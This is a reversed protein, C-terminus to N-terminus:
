RIQNIMDATVLPASNGWNTREHNIVAAIEENTLQAAFGPMPATYATGDITKGILGNLVTGIHEAPKSAVVVANGALAPFVGPLGGGAPQHCSACQNGYVQAGLKQWDEASSQDAAAAAAAVETVTPKDSQLDSPTDSGSMIQVVQESSVTSANNGWHTREHNVVAVIEDISLQAGFAPMPSGYSVGNITKGQLGKVITQIHETPDDGLVVQNAKLPPFVGPLGTGSSGHCASCTNGYIQEGLLSWSESGKPGQSSTQVAQVRSEAQREQYEVGLYWMGWAFVILVNLWAWTPIPRPTEIRAPEFTDGVDSTYANALITIQDHVIENERIGHIAIAPGNRVTIPIERTSTIGSEQTARFQLIHAGDELQTTDLNFREPADLTAIPKSIGDLFVEIKMTNYLGNENGVV